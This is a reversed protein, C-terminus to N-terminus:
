GASPLIPDIVGKFFEFSQPGAIPQDNVLFAPTAVFGHSYADKTSAEVKAQHVGSDLCNDFRATDLGLEAAYAKLDKGSLPPARDFLLDHYEWFRGQDFACQGAEAALPSAATIIPFDRWVFRVQTGYHSLIQELVSQRYWSRCTACGFDGYEVITVPADAPGLSPEDALSTGGEVQSSPRPWLIGIAGLVIVALLAVAPRKWNLRSAPQNGAGGKGEKMGPQESTSM